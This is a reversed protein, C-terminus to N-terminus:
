HKTCHVDIGQYRRYDASNQGCGGDVYYYHINVSFINTYRKSVFSESVEDTRDLSCVRPNDEGLTQEQTPLENKCRPADDSQSFEVARLLERGNFFYSFLQPEPSSRNISGRNTIWLQIM